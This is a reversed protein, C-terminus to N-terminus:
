LLIDNFFYHVEEQIRFLRTYDTLSCNFAKLLENFGNPITAKAKNYYDALEPKIDLYKSYVNFAYQTNRDLVYLLKRTNNDIDNNIICDFDIGNKSLYQRMIFNFEDENGYKNYSITENVSRKRPQRMRQMKYPADTTAKRLDDLYSDILDQQANLEYQITIVKDIYDMLERYDMNYADTRPDIYDIDYEDLIEDLDWYDNRYCNPLNEVKENLYHINRTPKKFYKKM